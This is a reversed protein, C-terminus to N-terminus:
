LECLNTITIPTGSKIIGSSTVADFEKIDTGDQNVEIGSGIPGSIFPM